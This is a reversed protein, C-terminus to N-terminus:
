RPLLPKVEASGSKFRGIKGIVVYFGGGAM